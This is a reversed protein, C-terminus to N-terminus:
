RADARTSDHPHSRGGRQERGNSDASSENVLESEVSGDLDSWLTVGGRDVEDVHAQLWSGGADAPRTVTIRSDSIRGDSRRRAEEDVAVLVGADVQTLDFALRDRVTEGMWKELVEGDWRWVEALDGPEAPPVTVQAEDVGYTRLMLVRTAGTADTLAARLDALGQPTAIPEYRQESPLLGPADEGGPRDVAGWVSVAAVFVGLRIWKNRTRREQGRRVAEEAVPDIEGEVPLSLGDGDLHEELVEDRGPRLYRPWRESRASIPGLDEGSM